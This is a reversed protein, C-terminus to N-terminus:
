YQTNKRHFSEDIRSLVKEKEKQYSCLIDGMTKQPNTAFSSTPLYLGQEYIRELDDMITYRHFDDYLSPSIKFIRYKKELISKMLKPNGQSHLKKMEDLLDLVDQLTIRSFSSFYTLDNLLDLWPGSVGYGGGFCKRDVREIGIDKSKHQNNISNEQLFTNFHSDCVLRISSLGRMKESNIVLEKIRHFSEEDEIQKRSLMYPTDKLVVANLLQRIRKLTFYYHHRETRSFYIYRDQDTVFRNRKIDFNDFSNHGEFRYYEVNGEHILQEAQERYTTM